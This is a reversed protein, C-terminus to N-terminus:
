IEMRLHEKLTTRGSACRSTPANIHASANLLLLVLEVDENAELSALAAQLATKGGECAIPANVQAGVNLFFIPGDGHGSARCSIIAANETM